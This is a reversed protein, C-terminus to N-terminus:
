LTFMSDDVGKGTAPDKLQLRNVGGAGDYVFVERLSFDSTSVVMVVKKYEATAKKPTLELVYYSAGDSGTARKDGALLSASFEDTLKGKGALFTLVVPIQTDKLATKQKTKSTVDYVWLTTGDTVIYYPEDGSYEWRMKGTKKFYVRGRKDKARGTASDYRQGFDAQYDPADDYFKQLKKAVEEATPAVDASAAGAALLVALAAALKRM